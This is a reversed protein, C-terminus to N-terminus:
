SGDDYSTPARRGAYPNCLNVGGMLWADLVEENSPLTRSPEGNELPTLTLHIARPYRRMSRLGVALADIALPVGLPLGDLIMLDIARRGPVLRCASQYGIREARLVAWGRRQNRRITVTGPTTTLEGALSAVADPPTTRLRIEQTKGLFILGCGCFSPTISILLFLVAFRVITTPHESSGQPATCVKMTTPAAAAGSRSPISSRAGCAVTLELEM